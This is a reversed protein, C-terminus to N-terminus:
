LLAGSRPAVIVARDLPGLDEKLVNLAAAEGGSTWRQLRQVEELDAADALSASLAALAIGALVKNRFGM